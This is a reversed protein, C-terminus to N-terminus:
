KYSVASSFFEFQFRFECFHILSAQKESTRRDTNGYIHSSKILIFYLRILALFRSVGSPLRGWALMRPLFCFYFLLLCCRMCLSGFFKSLKTQVYAACAVLISSPCRLVHLWDALAAANKLLEWRRNSRAGLRTCAHM